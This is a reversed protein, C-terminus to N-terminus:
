ALKRRRAVAGVLGLGVLMMAYTEPEPVALIRIDEVVIPANDWNEVFVVKTLHDWNLELLTPGTTTANIKTYYMSKDGIYGFIHISDNNWSATVNLSLLKFEGKEIGFSGPECCGTFGVQTGSVLGTEYGTGPNWAAPQTYFNDWQLGKYGDAIITYGQITKDGPVPNEFDITTPTAANAALALGTFAIAAVSRFATLKVSHM